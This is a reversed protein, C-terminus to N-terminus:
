AARRRRKLLGAAGLSLLALSSTEPVANAAHSASPLEGAFDPIVLNVISFGSNSHNGLQFQIWMRQSNDAAGIAYFWNDDSNSVAGSVPMSYDMFWITTRSGAIPTVSETNAGRDFDDDGPGSIRSVGTGTFHLYGYGKYSTSVITGLNSLGTNYSGANVNIVTAAEASGPLFATASCALSGYALLRNSSTTLTTM